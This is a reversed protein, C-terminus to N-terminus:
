SELLLLYTLAEQYTKCEFLVEGFDMSKGQVIFYNENPNRRYLWLFNEDQNSSQVVYAYFQINNAPHYSFQLKGEYWDDWVANKSKMPHDIMTGGIFVQDYCVYIPSISYM